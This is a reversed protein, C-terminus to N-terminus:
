SLTTKPPPLKGSPVQMRLFEISWQPRVTFEPVSAPIIVSEGRNFSVPQAGPAEVVGSGDV